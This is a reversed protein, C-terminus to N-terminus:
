GLRGVGYGVALAVVVPWNIWTAGSGDRERYFYLPVFDRWTLRARFPVVPKRLRLGM